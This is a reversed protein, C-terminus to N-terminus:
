RRKKRKAVLKRIDDQTVRVRLTEDHANEAAAVAALKELDYRLLETSTAPGGARADRVASGCHPCSLAEDSRAM